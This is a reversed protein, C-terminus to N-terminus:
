DYISAAEVRTNNVTHDFNKTVFIKAFNNGVHQLEGLLLYRWFVDPLILVDVLIFVELLLGM